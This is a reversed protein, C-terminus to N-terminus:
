TLRERLFGALDDKTVEAQVVTLILAVLESQTIMPVFGNMYCTALLAISAARKNGDVFPHYTRAINFCMVAAKDVVELHLDM